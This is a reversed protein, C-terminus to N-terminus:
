EDSHVEMMADIVLQSYFIGLTPHKELFDPCGSSENPIKFPCPLVKRGCWGLRYGCVPVWEIQTKNM